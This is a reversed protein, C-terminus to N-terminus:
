VNPFLKLGMSSDVDLNELHVVKKLNGFGPIDDDERERYCLVQAWNECM